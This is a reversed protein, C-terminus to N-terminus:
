QIVDSTKTFPGIKKGTGDIIEAETPKIGKRMM